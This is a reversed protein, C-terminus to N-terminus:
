YGKWRAYNSRAMRTNHNYYGDAAQAREAETMGEHFPYVDSKCRPCRQQDDCIATECCTTFFTSNTPSCYFVGSM